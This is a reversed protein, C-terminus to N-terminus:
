NLTKLNNESESKTFLSSSLFFNRSIFSCYSINAKRLLQLWLNRYQLLYLGKKYHLPTIWINYFTLTFKCTWLDCLVILNKKWTWSSKSFRKFILSWIVSRPKFEWTMDPYLRYEKHCRHCRYSGTKRWQQFSIVGIVLINDFITDRYLWIYCPITRNKLITQRQRFKLGITFAM